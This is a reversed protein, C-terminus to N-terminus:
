LAQALKAAEIEGPTFAVTEEALIVLRQQNNGFRALRGHIVLIGV